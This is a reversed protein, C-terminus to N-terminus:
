LSQLKVAHLLLVNFFHASHVDEEDDVVLDYGGHELAGDQRADGSLGGDLQALAPAHLHGLAADVDLFNRVSVVCALELLYEAGTGSCNDRRNALQAVLAINSVDVITLDTFNGM